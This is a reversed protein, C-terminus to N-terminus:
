LVHGVMLEMFGKLRAEAGMVTCLSGQDLDGTIEDDSSVGADANKNSREAANSVTEWVMRRLQREM